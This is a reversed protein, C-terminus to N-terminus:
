EEASTYDTYEVVGASQVISSTPCIVFYVRECVCM